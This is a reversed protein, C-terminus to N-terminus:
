KQGAQLFRCREVLFNQTLYSLFSYIYILYAAHEAGTGGELLPLARGFLKPYSLILISYIYILDWGAPLPLSGGFLKPYSSILFINPKILYPAHEAETGGAFLPLTGGFPKLLVIDVETQKSYSSIQKPGAQM